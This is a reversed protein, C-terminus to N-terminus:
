WLVLMFYVQTKVCSKETQYNIDEDTVLIFLFLSESINLVQSKPTKQRVIPPTIANVTVLATIYFFSTIASRIERDSVQYM